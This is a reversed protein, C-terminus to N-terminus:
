CLAINMLLQNKESIEKRIRFRCLALSLTPVVYM